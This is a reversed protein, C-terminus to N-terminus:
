RLRDASRILKEDRDIGRITFVLFLIAIMPLFTGMGYTANKLGGPINQAYQSCWFSAGITLLIAIFASVLIVGMNYIPYVFAGSNGFYGLTLILFYFSLFNPVGLTFAALINKSELKESGNLIKIILLLIM